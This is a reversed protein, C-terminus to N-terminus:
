QQQEELFAPDCWGTEGTARNAGFWYGSEHTMIVDIMDGIEFSLTEDNANGKYPAIAKFVGVLEEPNLTPVDDEPNESGHFREEVLNPNIWGTKMTSLNKAYWWTGNEDHNSYLVEIEDGASVDLEDMTRSGKFNGIAFLHMSGFDRTPMDAPPPADFAMDDIDEQEDEEEEEDEASGSGNANKKEESVATSGSVTNVDSEFLTSAKLSEMPSVSAKLNSTQQWAQERVCRDCIREGKKTRGKSCDACVLIGCRRCHHRRRLLPNWPELCIVCNKSTDDPDWLPAQEEATTGQRKNKSQEVCDELAKIWMQKVSPDSAFVIFSKKTNRIEFGNKSEASDPIDKVTFASNIDIQHHLVYQTLGGGHAYLLLDNFLFFTFDKNTNRCKKTLIGKMVFKRSPTILDIEKFQMQINLMDERRTSEKIANNIQAAVTSILDLADKIDQYDPHSVDTCKLLVELLLKYRPVRQVPTILLSELDLGKASATRENQQLFNKFKEKKYLSNVLRSVASPHNNIYQTYMKFFPGLKKFVTGVMANREDPKAETVREKLSTLFNSNIQLIVDINSFVGLIEEETLIAKDKNKTALNMLPTYYLNMIVGLMECYSVETTVIEKIINIRKKAQKTAEDDEAISIAPPAVTPSATAITGKHRAVPHSEPPHPNIVMKPKTAKPVVPPHEKVDELAKKALEAKLNSVPRQLPPKGPSTSTPSVGQRGPAATPTNKM